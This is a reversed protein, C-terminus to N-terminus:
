GVRAELCSGRQLSTSVCVIGRAIKLYQIQHVDNKRCINKYRNLQWCSHAATHEGSGEM